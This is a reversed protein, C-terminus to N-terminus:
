AFGLKSIAITEATELDDYGEEEEIATSTLSRTNAVRGAPPYCLL